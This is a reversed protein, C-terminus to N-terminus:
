LIGPCYSVDLVELHPLHKLMDGVAGGTLKTCGNLDLERLATLKALHALGHDAIKCRSLKLVKLNKTREPHNVLVQLGADTIGGCWSLNLEELQNLHQLYELRRDTLLDCRSVDLQQMQHWHQIASFVHDTLCRCGSLSLVKISRLHSLALLGRDSLRRCDVLSLKELNLSNALARLSTVRHCRDLRAVQLHQLDTLHSLGTDTVETSGRLDLLTMSATTSISSLYVEHDLSSMVQSPTPSGPETIDCHTSELSSSSFGDYYCTSHDSHEADLQMPEVSTESSSSASTLDPSPFGLSDSSKQHPDLSMPPPPPSSLAALWNDTVGRCGALSLIRFECHQLAWM